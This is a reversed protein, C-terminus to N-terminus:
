VVKKIAKKIKKKEEDEKEWKDEDKIYLTERKKDTCHIPRQTVDLAKLNSTIINSIGEVYGVQGVKELDSLQLKISDVFDMINMADKCTENLFFQLNFTKNHSNTNNHSNNTNHTGNKILELLESNQEMIKTHEKLLIMILEKDSIETNVIKNNTQCCKKKHRYYGSDYKYIKGCECEFNAVKQSKESDNVVMKNNKHKITSLHKSYDSKKCSTYDCTECYLLQALKQSKESDNVIM